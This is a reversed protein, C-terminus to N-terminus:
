ASKTCADSDVESNQATIEKKLSNRFADFASASAQEHLIARRRDSDIERKQFLRSRFEGLREVWLAYEAGFREELEKRLRQALAPSHGATSIAIQLPGRRVM